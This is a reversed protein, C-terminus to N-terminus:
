VSHMQVFLLNRNWTAQMLCFTSSYRKSNIIVIVLCKVFM